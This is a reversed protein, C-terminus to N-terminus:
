KLCARTSQSVSLKNCEQADGGHTTTWTETTCYYPIDDAARCAQGRTQMRTVVAPKPEPTVGFTVTEVYLAAATAECFVRKLWKAPVAGM